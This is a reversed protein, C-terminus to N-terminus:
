HNKTKDTAEPSEQREGKQAKESKDSKQSSSDQTSKTWEFRDFLGFGFNLYRLDSEAECDADQTKIGGHMRALARDAEESLSKDDLTMATKKAEEYYERAKSPNQNMGLGCEYYQGMHLAAKAKEKDDKASAAKETYGTLAAAYFHESREKDRLAARRYYSGLIRDAEPSPVLAAYLRVGLIFLEMHFLIILIILLIAPIFNCNQNRTRYM